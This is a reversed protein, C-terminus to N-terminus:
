NEKDKTSVLKFGLVVAVISAVITPTYRSLIACLESLWAIELQWVLRFLVSDLLVYAGIAILIYGILKRHTSIQSENITFGFESNNWIYEDKFEAKQEESRNRINYTDFFSYAMIVIIPVIFIISGTMVALILFVAALIMISLGRKMYEQYMQGAGPIFSFMFTFLINKKM